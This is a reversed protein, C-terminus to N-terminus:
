CICPQSKCRTCFYAARQEEKHKSTTGDMAIDALHERFSLSNTSAELAADQLASMIQTFLEKVAIKQKAQSQDQATKAAEIGAQRAMNRRVQLQNDLILQNLRQIEHEQAVALVQSQQLEDITANLEINAQVTQHQSGRLQEDMDILQGELATIARSHDVVRARVTILDRQLVESEAIAARSEQRSHQLQKTLEAIERKQASMIAQAESFDNRVKNLESSSQHSQHTQQELQQTLETIENKHKALRAQLVNYDQSLTERASQAESAAAKFAQLQDALQSIQQKQATLNIQAENIEQRDIKHRSVAQNTQHTQQELQETLDQIKQMQKAVIEQAADLNSKTVIYRGQYDVLSEQQLRLKQKLEQADINMNAIEVTQQMIREKQTQLKASSVADIPTFTNSKIGPASSETLLSAQDGFLADTVARGAQATLSTGPQTLPKRTVKALDSKSKSALNKAGTVIHKKM